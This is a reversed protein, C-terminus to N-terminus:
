WSRTSRNAGVAVFNGASDSVVHNIYARTPSKAKQWSAVTASHLLAGDRGVAVHRTRAQAASAQCLALFGAFLAFLQLRPLM